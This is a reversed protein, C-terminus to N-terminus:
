RDEERSKHESNTVASFFFFFQKEGSMALMYVSKRATDLPKGCMIWSNCTWILLSPIRPVLLRDRSFTLSKINFFFYFICELKTGTWCSIGFKESHGLSTGQVLSAKTIRCIKFRTRNIITKYPKIKSKLSREKLPVLKNEKYVWQLSTLPSEETSM